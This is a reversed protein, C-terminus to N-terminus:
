MEWYQIVWGPGLVAARSPDIYVQLGTVDPLGVRELWSDPNAKRVIHTTSLLPVECPLTKLKHGAADFVEVASQTYLFWGGTPVWQGALYSVSAPVIPGQFNTELQPVVLGVELGQRVDVVGMLQPQLIDGNPHYLVAAFSTPAVATPTHQPLAWAQGFNPPLGGNAVSLLEGQEVGPLRASVLEVGADIIKFCAYATPDQYALFIHGNYTLVPQGTPGTSFPAELPVGADLSATSVNVRRYSGSGDPMQLVLPGATHVLNGANDITLETKRTVLTGTTQDFDCYVTTALEGQEELTTTIPAEAAVYRSVEVKWVAEGSGNGFREEPFDELVLYAMGRHAPVRGVGEFSEIFSCPLQTETGFYLKIGPAIYVGDDPMAGDLSFATTSGDIFYKGSDLVLEGNRWLRKVVRIPGEGIGLAVRRYYKFLTLTNEESSQGKGTSTTQTVVEERLMPNPSWINSCGVVVDGFMIPITTGYTTYTQQLDSLRTGESKTKHGPLALGAAYQMAFSGISGWLDSGGPLSSGYTSGLKKGAIGAGLLIVQDM